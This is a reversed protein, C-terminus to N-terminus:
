FLVDALKPHKESTACYKSEIAEEQRPRECGPTSTRLHLANAQWVPRVKQNTSKSRAGQLYRKLSSRVQHLGLRLATVAKKEARKSLRTKTGGPACGILMPM